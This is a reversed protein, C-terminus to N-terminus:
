GDEFHAKSEDGERQDRHDGHQRAAHRVWITVQGVAVRRHTPENMGSTQQNDARSVDGEFSGHLNDDKQEHM